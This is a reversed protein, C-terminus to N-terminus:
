ENLYKVLAGWKNDVRFGKKEYFNRMYFHTKVISFNYNVMRNLFDDLMAGGIGRGKLQSNVIVGDLHVTETDLVRFCVGGAIRGASDAVVYYRDDDTFSNPYKEMIFLRFLQGIEGPGSPERMIYNSGFNDSIFSHLMVPEELSKRHLEFKKPKKQRPFVMRSFVELSEVSEIAGQLDSLEILQVASKGSNQNMASLLADFANCLKPNKENFYTYRYLSYRAIEPFRALDYLRFLEALTDEKATASANPNSDEWEKYRDIANLLALPMYYNRKAENMYQQLLDLLNESENGHVNEKLLDSKLCLFFEFAEDMGLAEIASDFIWSLDLQYRIWPYHALIKRYFNHVMPKIISLTDNYYDWGTISIIIAGEKFDLEPIIVNNTSIFGPTIRFGSNAWGRFFATMASIYLRRLQNLKSYKGGISQISEMQRLKEWLSLDGHFVMSRAGLGPKCCGIKPAVKPGFPHGEIALLWYITDLNRQSSYDEKIVMQLDFHKRQNTNVALRYIMSNRAARRRSIWIGGPPVDALSFDPEEFALMVSQKLFSTGVLIEKIRDTEFSNFEEDFVIKELWEEETYDQSNDTLFAEYIESVEDSYKRALEALEPDQRHLIWSALETRVSEYYEPNYRVFKVLLIFISEFQRRTIDSCPWGLHARYNYLRKRLLELRIKEMKDLAIERISRDNLFTLGSELFTPFSKSYDPTPEDVLLIRYAQCRITENPHRALAELRSRILQTKKGQSKRLIPEIDLLTGAAIKEEAFLITIMRHNLDILSNDRIRSMSFSNVAPSHEPGPEALMVRLSINGPNTDWGEKCPSFNILEPNGAWLLPQLVFKGLDILEGSITYELNGIVFSADNKAKKITLRRKKRENVLCDTEQRIDDELIGLDRFFWRPVQVKIDEFEFLVFNSIYLNGILAKYNENIIKRNYSGKPTIEGKDIEFYRDLVAFNIVREYPALTSNAAHIIQRFYERQIEKTSTMLIEDDFDPVIFLVNYPKGDGVLFASKIGPVNGYKSEVVRPAVTQGKNNKYIDKVRDIIELYGSDLVRFVDGTPLKCDTEASAPFGIIDGIKVDDFYRAIYHGSIEMEGNERFYTNVGPLPIGITNEMYKGPPTMTIGGTAETMGFGSCLNIGHEQFFLFVKPDLWGAASLGWRLNGGTVARVAAGIGSANTDIGEICKEYLQQWRLPISIFVTPAVEPFLSMLTDTSPNGTFVYTGHWFISGLLELYRGFTHYLPLYCLFTENIGIKPVAAARAFRKSIINYVSFSVGKPKGTSGSTFMVTAAQRIDNRKRSDLIETIHPKGLSKCYEQLYIINSFDTEYSQITHFIIFRKKTKRNLEELQRCREATDTVAININMSDFIDCLTTNDFYVNLPTDPIDYMLCALDCCASVVSNECFIAVRPKEGNSRGPPFKTYFAAAIEQIMSDAQRYTWEAPQQTSMDRFLTRGPHAALRNDFLDPLSYGSKQILGFATDLWQNLNDHDLCRLFESGGTINLSEHMLHRVEETVSDENALIRNLKLVNSIIHFGPKNIKGTKLISGEKLEYLFNRLDYFETKM